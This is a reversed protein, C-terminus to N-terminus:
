SIWSKHELDTGGNAALNRYQEPPQRLPNFSFGASPDSVNWYLATPLSLALAEALDGHPDLLCCGNGLSVSQAILNRLLTTKGTGSKGLVYLHQLQDRLTFKIPNQRPRSATLGLIQNRIFTGM